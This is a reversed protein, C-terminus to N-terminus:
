KEPHNLAVFRQDFASLKNVELAVIVGDSKRLRITNGLRDVFAAEIQHKGSKDTWTRATPTPAADTTPPESSMGLQQRAQKAAATDPYRELIKLFNAKAADSDGDKKLETAAALLQNASNENDERMFDDISSSTEVPKVQTLGSNDAVPGNKSHYNQSDKFFSDIDVIENGSEVVAAAVNDNLYKEFESSLAKSGNKRATNAVSDMEDLLNSISNIKQDIEDLEPGSLRKRASQLVTEMAGVDTNRPKLKIVVAAAWAAKTYDGAKEQNLAFQEWCWGSKPFKLLGEKWVVAANEPQKQEQLSVGLQRYVRDDTSGWPAINVAQLLYAAAPAHQENNELLMGVNYYTAWNGPDFEIAEHYKQAAVFQYIAKLEEDTQSQGQRIIQVAENIAERALQPNKGAKKNWPEISKTSFDHMPLVFGVNEVDTFKLTAIGLVEGNVNVVPGGSNGPNIAADIQYYSIGEHLRDIGSILGQSITKNLIGGGAAPNGIAYIQQGPEAKERTFTAPILEADHENPDIRVLALDKEPHRGIIRVRRFSVTEMKGNRRIDVLCRFPIPSSVVHANTLILGSRDIIIGTGSGELNSLGVVSPSVRQFVDTASRQALCPNALLLVALIGTLCPLMCSEARGKRNRQTQMAQLCVPM